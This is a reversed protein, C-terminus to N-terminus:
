LGRDGILRTPLEDLFSEALIEEVLKTEHPSASDVTVALPLSTVAAIAMIKTGKGRKTPGRGPGRKASAFTGDILGEELPLLGHGHLERALARLAKNLQGTRVWQQFRRHCTQSPPYKPPLERWQAGTRLIWLVGNLVARTDQPPRGRGDPWQRFRLLPELRAWEENSVEGRGRMPFGSFRRLRGKDRANGGSCLM